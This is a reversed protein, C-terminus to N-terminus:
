NTHRRPRGRPRLTSELSWEKAVQRVWAESGFPTGRQVSQRLAALEEDTEPHNVLMLWNAPRRVADRQWFAPATAPTSWWHLSSWPWREASTVLGARLPNREVYRVVQRVPDGTEVVGRAREAASPHRRQIPFSKFRGQWVHGSTDHRRHHRRVHSTMVWQMWTSLDGEEWPWLVLHIHTPMLCCSVVRMPTRECGQGLIDVFAAYDDEDHFVNARGNGRNVVHICIGGTQGREIRPM